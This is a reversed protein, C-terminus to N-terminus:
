AGRAALLKPTSLDLGAHGARRVLDQLVAREECALPPDPHLVRLEAGPPVRALLQSLTSPEPAQPLFQYGALMPDAAAREAQRQWLVSHLWADALLDLAQGIAARDWAGDAGRRVPLRPVHDMLFSGRAEGRQLADLVVVPMGHRKATLVERQCWERSAYLDTRLALLASSAAHRRLAQDWDAGPQLDQADYFSGIRTGGLVERVTDVLSAVAEDPGSMRKTHSIFVRLAPGGAPHLWRALAQSLDRRLVAVPPPGAAASSEALPDTAGLCQLPPLATALASRPDLPDLAVPLLAVQDPRRAASEVAERVWRLWDSGAPQCARMLEDGLFLVVAIAQAPPPHGPPLAADPWAIPRPASGPASWPASRQYFEMTGGLLSGYVGHHFHHDLEAALRAAARDGPHWALHVELIPAHM